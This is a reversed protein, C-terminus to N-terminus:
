AHEMTLDPINPSRAHYLAVRNRFNRILSSDLPQNHHIHKLMIPRLIMPDKLKPKRARVKSSPTGSAGFVSVKDIDIILPQHNDAGKGFPLYGVKVIGVNVSCIM